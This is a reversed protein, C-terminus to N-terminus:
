FYFRGKLATKLKHTYSQNNFRHSKLNDRYNLAKLTKLNNKTEEIKM